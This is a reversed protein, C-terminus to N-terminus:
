EKIIRGDPKIQIPQGNFSKIYDILMDTETRDAEKIRKEPAHLNELGETGGFLYSNYAVTYFKDPRPNKEDIKEQTGDDNVLYINKVKDDKGITYRLGAVQVAGTRHYKRTAQIANNLSDVIEKESFRYLHVHNYYPMMDSIQADTIPGKKFSSRISGANNLVIDAGTYKKYADCLFSSIANEALEQEPLNKYDNAIEGVVKPKGMFVNTALKVLLSEPTNEISKIENKAQIIKGNEDYVVDLIGIDHGNKGAQTIIVPEGRKSTFYNVGPILGNLTDHSHAGHIVDIGNVLKALAVDADIGMHSLVIIKNIGAKEFKDVEKQVEQITEPMSMMEFDKCYDKTEQSVRMFLDAPSLGIIGFKEGNKEIVTSRAFRGAAVDDNLACDKKLKLNLGLSPFKYSDMRKSLGLSGRWDFDHNGHVNADPKILNMIEIILSNKKENGGVYNDGGLFVFTDENLERSKARFKSVETKIKSFGDVHSHLDNAYLSKIRTTKKPPTNQSPTKQVPMQTYIAQNYVQQQYNPINM